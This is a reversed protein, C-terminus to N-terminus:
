NQFAMHREPDYTPISLYENVGPVANGRLLSPSYSQVNHTHLVVRNLDTSRDATTWTADRDIRAIRHTPRRHSRLRGRPSRYTAADFVGRALYVGDREFTAKVGRADVSM